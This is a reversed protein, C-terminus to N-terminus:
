FVGEKYKDLADKPMVTQLAKWMEILHLPQGVMAGIEDQVCSAKGVDESLKRLLVVGAPYKADCLLRHVSKRRVATCGRGDM